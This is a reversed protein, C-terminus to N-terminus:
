NIDARCHRVELDCFSDPPCDGPEGDCVYTDLPAGTQRREIVRLGFSNPAEDTFDCDECLAQYSAQTPKEGNEVWAGLVAPLFFTAEDFRCHEGTVTQFQALNDLRGKQVFSQRYKSQNEPIVLGDNLSQITLVKSRTRARPEYFRRMYRVGKEDSEVRAVGANIEAAEAVTLGPSDYEVGINSWPAHGRTRKHFVEAMALSSFFMDTGLFDEPIQSARLFLDRRALQETSAQTRDGLLGFCPTVSRLVFDGEIAAPETTEPQEAFREPHDLLFDTCEPSLSVRPGASPERDSCTQGNPCDADIVCRSVGDSCIGCSFEAGPVDRCIHDYLVRLDLAGNFNRRAGALPGCLPAAGDYRRPRKEIATATIMGGGSHGWIYEYIPEGYNEIFYDRIRNMDRLSNKVRWGPKKSVTVVTAYGYFPPAVAATLLLPLRGRYDDITLDDPIQIATSDASYGHAYVFSSGNWDDPIVILSRAKRIDVVEVSGQASAESPVLVTANMFVFTLALCALTRQVFEISTKPFRHLKM